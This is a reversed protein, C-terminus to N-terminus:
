IKSTSPIPEEQEKYATGYNLTYTGYFGFSKAFIIFKMFM